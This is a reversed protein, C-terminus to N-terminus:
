RLLEADEATARRDGVLAAALGLSGTDRTVLARKGELPQM